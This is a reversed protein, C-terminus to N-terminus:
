FHLCLDESLNLLKISLRHLLPQFGAPFNHLASRAAAITPTQQTLIPCPDSKFYGVWSYIYNVPTLTM